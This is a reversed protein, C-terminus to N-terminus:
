HLEDYFENESDGFQDAMLIGVNEWADNIENDTEVFKLGQKDAWERRNITGGLDLIRAAGTLFNRFGSRNIKLM